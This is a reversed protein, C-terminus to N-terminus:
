SVEEQQHAWYAADSVRNLAENLPLTGAGVKSLEVAVSVLYDTKEVTDETLDDPHIGMAMLNMIVEQRRAMQQISRELLRVLIYWAVILSGLVLALETM